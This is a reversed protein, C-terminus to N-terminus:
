LFCTQKRRWTAAIEPDRSPPSRHQLLRWALDVDLVQFPKGFKQFELRSPLLWFILKSGLNFNISTHLLCRMFRKFICVLSKTGLQRSFDLFIM